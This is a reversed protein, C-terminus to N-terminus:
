DHVWYGKDNEDWLGANILLRIVFECTVNDGVMGCSISIRYLKRRGDEEPVGMFEWHLLTRATTWPIFGDTLNRNCYALGALWLAQGLPGVEAHKPHEDYHDDIKIWVM